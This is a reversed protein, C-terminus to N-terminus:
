KTSLLSAPITLQIRIPAFASFRRIFGPNAPVSQHQDLKGPTLTSGRSACRVAQDKHMYSMSCPGNIRCEGLTRFISLIASRANAGLVFDTGACRAPRCCCRRVYREFYQNSVQQRVRVGESNKCAGARDDEAAHSRGEKETAAGKRLKLLTTRLASRRQAEGVEAKEKESAFMRSVPPSKM